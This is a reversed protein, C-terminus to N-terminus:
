NKQISGFRVTPTDIPRSPVPCPCDRTGDREVSKEIRGMGDWGQIISDWGTGDWGQIIGDWGMGDWGSLADQGTSKLRRPATQGLEGTGVLRAWGSITMYM